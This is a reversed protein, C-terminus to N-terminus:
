AAPRPLAPAYLACKDGTCPAPEYRRVGGVRGGYGTGLLYDAIPPVTSDATAKNIWGHTVLLAGATTIGYRRLAGAIAYAAM